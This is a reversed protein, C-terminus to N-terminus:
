AYDQETRWQTTSPIVALNYFAYM